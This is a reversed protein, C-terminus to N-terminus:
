KSEKENAKVQVSCKCNNVGGDYKPKSVNLVPQCKLILLNYPHTCCAITAFNM